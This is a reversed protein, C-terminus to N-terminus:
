QVVVAAFRRGIDAAWGEWFPVYRRADAHFPKSDIGLSQLTASVPASAAWIAVMEVTPEFHFQVGWAQAGIRFGQIGGNARALITADSPPACCYGHAEFVHFTPPLGALLRDDAAAPEM